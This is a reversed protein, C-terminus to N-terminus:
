REDNSAGNDGLIQISVETDKLMDGIERVTTRLVEEYGVSSSIATTVRAISQERDARLRAEEYLRASEMASALREVASEITSITHEDYGETLRASVVGITQGRLKIPVAVTNQKDLNQGDGNSRITVGAELAESGLEPLEAISQIRINDFRYGKNSTQGNEVLQTWSASTYQGYTGELESLNSELAQLLRTREIATALQDAMIQMIAVDDPHFAQPQDSQVDLVGIVGAEVKLPLAMESRADPLLINDFNVGDVGENLTVRPEGSSSVRGVVGAEGVRVKYNSAIMHRGAETPSAVLSAFEKNNDLLFIGTYYFNFRDRILRASRELLESLNRASAADQAIEAAVRLRLTQSELERTRDIIRQELNVISHRLQQTMRNFAGALVGIEDDSLKTITVFRSFNSETIVATADTLEQIPRLTRTTLVVLGLSGLLLALLSVAGAWLLQTNQAKSIHTHDYVIDLVGAIRESFDRVPSTLIAYDRGEVSPHTISIEGALATAYSADENWLSNDQTTAYLGLEPIPGETLDNATATVTDNVLLIHWEGGYKEKLANLLSTNFGFGVEVSGIHVGQHYIPVVGRVGLGGQEYELGSVPKMETNAKLVAPMIIDSGHAGPDNLSLFLKADPLHYQFQTINIEKLNEYSPLTLDILEQRDRRALADQISPNGAAAFAVALALSEQNKIEASLADSYSRLDAEETTHYTDHLVSFTYAFIGALLAAFVLLAPVILKRTLIM